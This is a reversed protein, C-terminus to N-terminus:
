ARVRAESLGQPRRGPLPDLLGDRLHDPLLRRDVFTISLLRVRPELRSGEGRLRSGDSLPFGRCRRSEYSRPIEKEIPRAIRAPRPM